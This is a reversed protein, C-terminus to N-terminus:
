ALVVLESYRALAADATLLRMPEAMAQALLLRDFLDRHHDPLAAVLAGHEASVALEVFGSAGIGAVLEEPLAKLRGPGIKIAAEWISAASVFVEDAAQIEARAQKSLRRSDALFWLYIQTDLLLRM